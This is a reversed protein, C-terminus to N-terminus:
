CASGLHPLPKFTEQGSRSQGWLDIAIAGTTTLITLTADRLAKLNLFQM